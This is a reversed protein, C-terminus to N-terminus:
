CWRTITFGTMYGDLLGGSRQIVGGMVWPAIIGALTYLAGYIAIVAGRQSVPTFEAGVDAPLGCLDLRLARIRDGAARDAAGADHVYPLTALILGGVVLPFAGLIGRAGRTTFGRAMLAQSVWGTLLVVAAGFLWPLISIWGAQQQSFGLGTVIFSTFWTLGLSLAWYAGFTAVCCGIFTRSALAPFVSDATRRRGDGGTQTLPGEEGWILWAVGWMLGVVGLGASPM